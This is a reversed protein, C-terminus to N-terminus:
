ARGGMGMFTWKEMCLQGYVVGYGINQNCHSLPILAMAPDHDMNLIFLVM